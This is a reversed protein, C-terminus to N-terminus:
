DYEREVKLLKQLLNPSELMRAVKDVFYSAWSLHKDMSYGDFLLHSIFLYSYLAGGINERLLLQTAKCHDQWNNWDKSGITIHARKDHAIPNKVWEIDKPLIKFPNVSLILGISGQEWEPITETAIFLRIGGIIGIFEAKSRSILMEKM